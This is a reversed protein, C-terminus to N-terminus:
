RRIRGNNFCPEYIPALFEGMYIEKGNPLKYYKRYTLPPPAYDRLDNVECKVRNDIRTAM